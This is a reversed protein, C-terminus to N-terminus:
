RSNIAYKRYVNMLDNVHKHLPIVRKGSALVMQNLLEQNNVCEAMAKMLEDVRNPAILWGNEGERIQMEAGGCRTAIVPKGLMQAEAIDLGFVELFIAQQFQTSPPNALLDAAGFRTRAHAHAERLLINVHLENVVAAEREILLVQFM